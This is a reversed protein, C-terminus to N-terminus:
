SPSFITQNRNFTSVTYTLLKTSDQRLDQIIKVQGTTSNVGFFYQSPYTGDIEYVISGQPFFDAM